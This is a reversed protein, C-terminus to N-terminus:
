HVRGQVEDAGPVEDALRHLWLAVEDAPSGMRALAVGAVMMAHVVDAPDYGEEALEVARDQMASALTMVEDSEM